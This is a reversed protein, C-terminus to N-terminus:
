PEAGLWEPLDSIGSHSIDLVEIDRLDRVWDPMEEVGGLTLSKM